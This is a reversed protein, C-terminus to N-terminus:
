CFITIGKTESQLTTSCLSRKFTPQTKPISFNSLKKTVALRSLNFNSLLPNRISLLFLQNESGDVACNIKM